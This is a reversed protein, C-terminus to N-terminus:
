ALDPFAYSCGSFRQLEGLLLERFLELHGRAVHPPDFAPSFIEGDLRDRPQRLTEAYARPLEQFLGPSGPM